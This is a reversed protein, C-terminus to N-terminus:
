VFTLSCDSYVFVKANKQEESFEREPIFIGIIVSIFDIM